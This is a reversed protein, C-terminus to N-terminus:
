SHRPYVQNRKDVFSQAVGGVEDVETVSARQYHVDAAVQSGDMLRGALPTQGDGEGGVSVQM